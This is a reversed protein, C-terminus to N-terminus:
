TSRGQRYRPGSLRRRNDPIRSVPSGLCSARSATQRAVIIHCTDTYQDCYRTSIDEVRPPPGERVVDTSM